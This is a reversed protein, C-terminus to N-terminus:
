NLKYAGSLKIQKVDTLVQKFLNCYFILKRKFVRLISELVEESIKVSFNGLFAPRCLMFISLM